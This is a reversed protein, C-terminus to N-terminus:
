NTAIMTLTSRVRDIRRMDSAIQRLNDMTDAEIKSVIDYVGYVFHAEKVGALKRVELLVSEESGSEVNMLVFAFPM